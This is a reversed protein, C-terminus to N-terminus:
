GAGGFGFLGAIRSLIGAGTGDQALALLAGAGVGGAGFFKLAQPAFRKVLSVVDTAGPVTGTFKQYAMRVDAFENYAETYADEMADRAETAAEIAVTAGSSPTTEFTNDTGPAM